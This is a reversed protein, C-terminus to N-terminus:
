FDHPQDMNYQTPKEEAEKPSFDKSSMKQVYISVYFRGKIYVCVNHDINTVFADLNMINKSDQANRFAQTYNQFM